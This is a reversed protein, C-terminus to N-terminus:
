SFQLIDATSPSTSITYHEVLPEGNKDLLSPFSIEHYIGDPSILINGSAAFSELPAWLLKSVLAATSNKKKPPKELSRFYQRILSTDELQAATGLLVLHPRTTDAAQLILA